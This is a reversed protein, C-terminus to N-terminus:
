SFLFTSNDVCYTDWLMKLDHPSSTDNINSSHWTKNERRLDITGTEKAIIHNASVDMGTIDDKVAFAFPNNNYLIPPPNAYNVTEIILTPALKQFFDSQSFFFALCSYIMLSLLVTFNTSVSERNALHLLLPKKFLDISGFIKQFSM